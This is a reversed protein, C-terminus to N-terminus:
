FNKPFQTSDRLQLITLLQFRQLKSYVGIVWLTLLLREINGCDGRSELDMGVQSGKHLIYVTVM